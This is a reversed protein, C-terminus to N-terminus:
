YSDLLTDIEIVTPPSTLINIYDTVDTKLTSIKIRNFLGELNKVGEVKSNFIQFSQSDIDWFVSRGMQLLSYNVLYENFSKKSIEEFIFYATKFKGRKFEQVGKLYNILNNFPEYVFSRTDDIFINGKENSLLFGDLIQVILKLEDLPANILNEDSFLISKFLMKDLKANKENFRTDKLYVRNLLGKAYWNLRNFQKTELLYNYVDYYNTELYNVFYQDNELTNAWLQLFKLENEMDRSLYLLNLLQSSNTVAIPDFDLYNNEKLFKSVLTSRRSIQSVTNSSNILQIANTYIPEAHVEEIKNLRIFHNAKQEEIGETKSLWKSLFSIFVFVFILTINLQFLGDNFKINEDSIPEPEKNNEKPNEFIENEIKSIAVTEKKNSKETHSRKHLLSKEKSLDELPKSSIFYGTLNIALLLIQWIALCLFGYKFIMYILSLLLSIRRSLDNSLISNYISEFTEDDLFLYLSISIAIFLVRSKLSM